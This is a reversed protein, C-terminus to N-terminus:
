YIAMEGVLQEARAARSCSPCFDRIVDLKMAEDSNRRVFDLYKQPAYPAGCLECKVLTFKAIVVDRTYITREDEEDVMWIAGTPCVQTCSGCGICYTSLREFDTTVKREYGRHAFCLAYAGIRDRCVRVCRGCRVCKDDTDGTYFRSEFVGYSAALDILARSDPSRALLMEFILKRNKSVKESDTRVTLGEQVYQACSIRISPPLSGGVEVVCLRCVGYPELAELYCLTPIDIGQQRAVQLITAEQPVEIEKDNLLIKAKMSKEM